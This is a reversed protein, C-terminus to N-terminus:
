TLPRPPLQSVFEMLRSRSDDFRQRCSWVNVVALLWAAMLSLTIALGHKVLWELSHVPVVSAAIRLVGFLATMIGIANRLHVARSLTDGANRLIDERLEVRGALPGYLLRNQSTM